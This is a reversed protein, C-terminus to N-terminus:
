CNFYASSSRPDPSNGFNIGKDGTLHRSRCRNCAAAIGHGFSVKDGPIEYFQIMLDDPSVRAEAVIRKNIEKLLALRIEKSRGQLFTVELLIFEDTYTMGVFSPTHVFRKKPLEHIIQFLDDPTVKLIQLLAGQVANSINEIRAQDYVGQTLHVKAVPM